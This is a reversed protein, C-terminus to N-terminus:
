VGFLPCCETPPVGYDHLQAPTLGLPFVDRVDARLQYIERVRAATDPHRVARPLEASVPLDFKALLRTRDGPSRIDFGPAANRGRIWALIRRFLSRAQITLM